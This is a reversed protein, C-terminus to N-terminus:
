VLQRAAGTWKGTSSIQLQYTGSPTTTALYSPTVSLSTMLDQVVKVERTSTGATIVLTASRTEAESQNEEIWLSYVGDGGLLSPLLLIWGTEEGDYRVAATSSTNCRVPINLETYVAPVEYLDQEVDIYIDNKQCSVGACVTLAAAIFIYSKKKM